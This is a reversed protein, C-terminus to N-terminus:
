SQERLCGLDHCLFVPSFPLIWCFLVKQFSQFENNPFCIIYVQKPTFFFIISSQTLTEVMYNCMRTPYFYSWLCSCKGPPALPSSDVQWHWLCLLRPNLRQTLFIRQLLFHCGVGTNQRFFEMSLSAQYAVTWPTVFLWVHSPCTLVCVSFLQKLNPLWAMKSTIRSYYSQILLKGM